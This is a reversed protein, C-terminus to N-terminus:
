CQCKHCFRKKETTFLPRRLSILLEESREQSFYIWVSLLLMWGQQVPTLFSVFMTQTDVAYSADLTDYFCDNM